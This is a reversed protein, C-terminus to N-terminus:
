FYIIDCTHANNEVSLRRQNEVVEHTLSAHYQLYEFHKSCKGLTLFAM